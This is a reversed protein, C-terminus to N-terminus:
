ATKGGRTDDAPEMAPVQAGHAEPTAAPAVTEPPAPGVERPPAHHSVPTAEHRRHRFVGRIVEFLETIDGGRATASERGMRMLLLIGAGLLLFNASWMAWFPSLIDRDALSEGAILGVYYVGFVVLSVGIVLGVGGRPFRLAVPAGVLVFILCAVSIAFKKHLEVANRNSERNAQEMRQRVAESAGGLLASPAARYSQPAVVPAGSPGAGGLVSDVSIPPATRPAVPPAASPLPVTDLVPRSTDVVGARASDIRRRTTDQVVPTAGQRAGVEGAHAIAVVGPLAPRTLRARQMLDCYLRGLSRRNSRPAPTGPLTTMLRQQSLEVPPAPIGTLAERTVTLLADELERRSREYEHEYRAVENQLECISMERDSKYSDERTQELQNAVGKVRVYDTSFQLRQLRGPESKAVVLMFGDHLTLLLDRGNPAFALEGSDAYISRRRNADSLDYITVDHMLNDAELRGARLYFQGPSVENIVQERLGFTPKKRAIDGQLTRLEHNAAPLVRDNFAVMGVSVVAAALLVPVLLRASSVGSAKMASIENEAALRSFAYLTAVLISMPLTMAVTFPISLFLFKGIVGASLGKGVLNGFQKAVYNLLLLSTLATFAFTFPGVHERLVYRQIIKVSATPEDVGPFRLRGGRYFARRPGGFTGLGTSYLFKGTM